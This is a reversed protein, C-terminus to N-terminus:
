DWGTYDCWARLSAFRGDRLQFVGVWSEGDNQGEEAAIIRVVDERSFSATSVDDGIVAAPGHTHGKECVSPNGYKFAEEWDYDDLEPLM